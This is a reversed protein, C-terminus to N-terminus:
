ACHIYSLNQCLNPDAASKYYAVYDVMMYSTQNIIPFDPDIWLSTTLLMNLPNNVIRLPFQVTLLRGGNLYTEMTTKNWHMGFINWGNLPQLSEVNLKWITISNAFKVDTKGNSWYHYHQPFYASNYTNAELVDIEVNNYPPPFFLLNAFWFSDHWGSINPVWLRSEFYGYGFYEQTNIRGQSYGYSENSQKLWLNTDKIIVNEPQSVAGGSIGTQIKWKTTNITTSTNFDDYWALKFISLNLYGPVVTPIKPVTGDVLTWGMFFLLIRLCADM